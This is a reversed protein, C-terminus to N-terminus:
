EPYVHGCPTHPAAPLLKTYQYTRNSARDHPVNPEDASAVCFSITIQCSRQPFRRQSRQALWHFRNNAILLFEAAIIATLLKLWCLRALRIARGATNKKSAGPTKEDQQNSPANDPSFDRRVRLDTDPARCEPAPKRTPRVFRGSPIM